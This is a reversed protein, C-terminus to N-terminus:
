AGQIEHYVPAGPCPAPPKDLGKGSDQSWSPLSWGGGVCMSSCLALRLEGGVGTCGGPGPSPPPERDQHLKQGSTWISPALCALQAALPCIAPCSDSGGPPDVSWTLTHTPGQPKLLHSPEASPESAPQCRGADQPNQESEERM